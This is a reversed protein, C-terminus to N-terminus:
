RDRRVAGHTPAATAAPDDDAFEQRDRELQAEFAAVCSNHLWVDARGYAAYNYKQAEGVPARAGANGVNTSLAAYLAEGAAQPGQQRDAHGNQVRRRASEAKKRRKGVTTPSSGTQEAIQRDSKGPDLKLLADIAARRGKADLHRRIAM